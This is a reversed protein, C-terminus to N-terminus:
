HNRHSEVDGKSKAKTEPLFWLVILAWINFLFCLAVWKLKNKGKKKSLHYGMLGSLSILLIMVLLNIIQPDTTIGDSKQMGYFLYYISNGFGLCYLSLGVSVFLLVVILACFRRNKKEM